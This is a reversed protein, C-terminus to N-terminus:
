IYKEAIRKIENDLNDYIICDSFGDNIFHDKIFEKDKSIMIVVPTKFKKIKKLEKLIVYANDPEMDDKLIILDFTDGASIKDICERGVLTSIVDVDYKLLMREIKDLNDSDDAVLIRKKVKVGLNYKKVDELVKEEKTDEIRQDVVVVIISGKGEESKISISGGLMKLIKIAIPMELNLSDNKQFEEVSVDDNSSLLENIKSISMGCGSDKITFVLRCIDYRTISDFEVDIFGSNTYKISNSIISLLVQKLKINDGFLYEPYKNFVRLNFEIESDKKCYSLQNKATVEIDTLFKKTMYKNNYMKIKKVDVSSISTIDNMIFYANNADQQILAILRDREEKSNTDKYLRSINIINQIPKKMEQSVKFLFNSKDNVSAEVLEKNRLLINIMQMDPNEITFYMLFTIFVDAATMLLYGTTNQIFLMFMGIGFYAFLPLYKKSKLDKYNKIMAVIAISLFVFTVIYVLNVCLGTPFAQGNDNVVEVPLIMVLILLVAYVIGSHKLYRKAKKDKDRNSVLLVYLIMLTDWTIYFLIIFKTLLIYSFSTVDYNNIYLIGSFADLIIGVLSVILLYSYVKNEVYNVRKKSFFVIILLITYILCTVSVAISVM